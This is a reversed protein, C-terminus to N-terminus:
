KIGIEKLRESLYEGATKDPTLKVDSRPHLFLPLSYRSKLAADGSPNVVRHTTSKYYGGTTLQLMDGANVILDGPNCEIKHWNGNIDKVELGPQTAAPLLTILNIDEHAAARVAGEEAGEVPPYHLIRFLSQDSDRIMLPLYEKTLFATHPTELDIWSLLEKAIGLLRMRLILTGNSMMGQPMDEYKYLHYFEKLDKIPNGKANESRMPFFGSQSGKNHTFEHKEPSAFFSEWDQYTSALLDPEITHNTIVAFGTEKLSKVFKSAAGISNFDVTEIKM